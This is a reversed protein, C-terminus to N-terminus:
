QRKNFEEYDYIVRGRTVKLLKDMYGEGYYDRASRRNKNFLEKDIPSPFAKQKHVTTPNGM